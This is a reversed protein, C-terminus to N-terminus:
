PASRGTAETQPSCKDGCSAITSHHGPLFSAKTPHNHYTDQHSPHGPLADWSEMLGELSGPCRELALLTGTRGSRSPPAAEQPVPIPFSRVCAPVSPLPCAPLRRHQPCAPPLLDGHLPEASGGPLAAGPRSGPVTPAPAVCLLCVTSRFALVQKNFLRRKYM